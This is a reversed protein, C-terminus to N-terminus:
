ADGRGWEIVGGGWTFGGGFASLLVRSGDRLRGDARAVDLAYPLTAASMNGTLEICDVVRTVDLELREAVAKLIRGNAQHYVFLDIEDLTLGAHAVVERTIESMRAVAHKFTEHGDMQIKAESGDLSLFSPVFGDSRLLIPGVRGAEAPTAVMVVAGVGDAFLMATQKSDQDTVRSIFDAGIVLVVEARGAEVSGAALALASLFGNCAANVDIAGAHVGLEHAVRAATNPMPADPTLTGVVILDVDAAAIGARGLASRAAVLAHDVLREGPAAHRRERIGTRTHIWDDTKGIREAIAANTVVGAPLSAGVSVLAAGRLMRRESPERERVTAAPVLTEEPVSM